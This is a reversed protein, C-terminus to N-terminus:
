PCQPGSCSEPSRASSTGLFSYDPADSLSNCQAMTIWVTDIARVVHTGTPLGTGNNPQSNTPATQTLHGIKCAFAGTAYGTLSCYTWAAGPTCVSCQQGYPQTATPATNNICMDLPLGSGFVMWSCTVNGASVASCATLGSESWSYPSGGDSATVRTETIVYKGATQFGFPAAHDEATYVSNMTGGDDRTGFVSNTLQAEPTAATNLVQLPSVETQTGNACGVNPPLNVCDFGSTCCTKDTRRAFTTSAPTSPVVRAFVRNLQATTLGQGTMMTGRHWGDLMTASGTGSTGLGAFWYGAVVPGIKPQVHATAVCVCGSDGQVCTCASTSGSNAGGDGPIFVGCHKAMARRPATTLNNGSSCSPTCSITDGNALSATTDAWKIAGAAGYRAYTDAYNTLATQDRIMNSAVTCTTFAGPPSAQGGDTQYYQNWSASGGSIDNLRTMTETTGGPLVVWTQQPPSNVPYLTYASGTAMTGDGKLCWWGSDFEGGDWAACFEIAAPYEARLCGGDAMLGLDPSCPANSPACGGDNARSYGADCTGGSCSVSGWGGDRSCTAAGTCNLVNVPGLATGHNKLNIDALAASAVLCLTLTKM